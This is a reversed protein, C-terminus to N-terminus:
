SGSLAIRARHVVCSTHGLLVGFSLIYVGPSRHHTLGCGELLDVRPVCLLSNLIINLKGGVTQTMLVGSSQPSPSDAPGWRLLYRLRRIPTVCLRTLEKNDDRDCKPAEGRILITNSPLM